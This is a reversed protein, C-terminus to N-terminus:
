NYSKDSFEYSSGNGGVGKPNVTVVNNYTKGDMSRQVIFVKVNVEIGTQWNLVITKDNLQASLAIFTIPLSSCHEIYWPDQPDTNSCNKPNGGADTVITTQKTNSIVVVKSYTVSDDLDKEQIRYYLTSPIPISNSVPNNKTCSCIVILLFFLVFSFTKM